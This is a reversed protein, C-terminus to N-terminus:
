QIIELWNYHFHFHNMILAYIILCKITTLLFGMIMNLNDNKIKNGIRLIIINSIIILIYIYWSNTIVGLLLWFSIILSSVGYTIFFHYDGDSRYDKNSPEKGTVKKFKLAWNKITFFKFYNFVNSLSLILPILGFIYYLNGILNVM